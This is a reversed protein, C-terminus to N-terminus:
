SLSDLPSSIDRYNTETIQTYLLTTKIDKHGLLGKIFGIDTGMELLHTAYSHRLGHIGIKKHITAKRMANKFVAQASRTSYQGEYQGEFLYEKPKYALYYERLEQLVTKPLPVYRDQKGKANQIHVMMRTSDIDGIKLNVVESVRLGMGYCLKLILRHKKNTTVEFLKSVEKKSLVKPLHSQKKPRPIDVFFKERHLVKEFYFKIANLRSHVQSESLKLEQICYLIYSKLKEPTLNQVPFDKLVFLLQSFESIYTKITSKSYAKLILTDYYKQFEWQNVPHTKFLIPAFKSKPPIGFLKRYHAIDRVYWSKNKRSWRAKVHVKLHNRLKSDNPFHVWIVQKDNHTGLIYTYKDVEFKM